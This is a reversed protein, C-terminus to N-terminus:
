IKTSFSRSNCYYQLNLSYGYRLRHRPGLNLKRSKSYFLKIFFKRALSTLIKVVDLVWALQFLDASFLSPYFKKWRVPLSRRVALVSPSKWFKLLYKNEARTPGPNRWIKQDHDLGTRVMQDQVLRNRDTFGQSM